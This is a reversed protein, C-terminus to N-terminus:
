QFLMMASGLIMLAIAFLKPIVNKPSLDEKLKRSGILTFAISLLFVYVSQFTIMTYVLGVPALLTAFSVLLNGVITLSESGINIAMIKSGSKFLKELFDHRYRPISVFILLGVIGLGFYQWFSSILFDDPLTVYKFLVSAIVEFLAAGLMLFVVKKKLSLGRRFDISLIAAGAIIVLSWGLSHLSFHEDLLLLGLLYAFVTETLFWPIIASVEDERLAYLYFIIWIISFLGALILLGADLLPISFVSPHIILIIGSVIFGFLSSFLVLSGPEEGEHEESKSYFTEILYKDIQNVLAWFFPGAIAFFIWHMGYAYGIKYKNEVILTPIIGAHM